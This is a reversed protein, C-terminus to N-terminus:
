AVPYKLNPYLQKITDNNTLKEIQEKKLDLKSVDNNNVFSQNIQWTRYQGHLKNEVKTKPIAIAPTVLNAYKTNDFINDTYNFGISDLIDRINKYNNEFLNEYKLFYINKPKLEEQGETEQGETQQTKTEQLQKLYLSCHEIYKDINHSESIKYEMRKNLSSFVWLPNRIILIKIYDEYNSTFFKDRIFPFKCLIYKKGSAEALAIEKPTIEETEEVINHVEDIHSIVSKLITTGCHPFGLVIIKKM